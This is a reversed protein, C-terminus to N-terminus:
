LEFVILFCILKEQRNDFQISGRFHDHSVQYRVLCKSSGSEQDEPYTSIILAIISVGWSTFSNTFLLIM